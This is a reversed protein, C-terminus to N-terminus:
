RALVVTRGHYLVQGGAQSAASLGIVYFDAPAIVPVIRWGAERYRAQYFELVPALDPSAAIRVTKGRSERRLIAILGSLDEPSRGSERSAESLLRALQGASAHSFPIATLVFATVVATVLLRDAWPRFQRTTMLLLLALGFAPLIFCFNAAVSLGLCVGSLNLYQWADRQYRTLYEIAFVLGCSWFALALDLGAAPTAYELCLYVAGGLGIAAWAGKRMRSALRAIACLYLALGLVEPARLSFASLRLAAVTRKMLLSDLVHNAPDFSGLWDSVPPRVFHQFAYAERTAIPLAVAMAVGAAFVVAIVAYRLRDSFVTSGREM